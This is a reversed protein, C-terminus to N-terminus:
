PSRGLGDDTRGPTAFGRLGRPLPSVGRSEVFHRFMWVTWTAALAYFALQVTRRNFPSEAIWLVASPVYGVVSTTGGGLHTLRAPANSLSSGYQFELVAASDTLPDFRLEQFRLRKHIRPLGHHSDANVVATWLLDAQGDERRPLEYVVRGIEQTHRADAFVRVESVEDGEGVALGWLPTGDLACWSLSRGQLKVLGDRVWPLGLNRALELDELHTERIRRFPEHGEKRWEFGDNDWVMLNTGQYLWYRLGLGGATSPASGAPGNADRGWNRESRFGSPSVVVRIPTSPGGRLSDEVSCLARVDAAGIGASWQLYSLGAAEPRLSTLCLLGAVGLELIWQTTRRSLSPKM